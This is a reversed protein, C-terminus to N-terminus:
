PMNNLQCQNKSSQVASYRSTPVSPVEYHRSVRFGFSSVPALAGDSTSRIFFLGNTRLLGVLTTDFPQVAELPQRVGPAEVSMEVNQPIRLVHFRASRLPCLRKRYGAFSTKLELKFGFRSGRGVNFKQVTSGKFRRVPPETQVSRMLFDTAGRNAYDRTDLSTLGCSRISPSSSSSCERFFASYVRLNKGL